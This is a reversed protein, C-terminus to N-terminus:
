KEVSEMTVEVFESGIEDMYNSNESNESNFEIIAGPNYLNGMRKIALDEVMKLFIERKSLGDKFYTSNIDNIIATCKKEASSLIVVGSEGVSKIGTLLSDRYYEWACTDFSSTMRESYEYDNDLYGWWAIHNVAFYSLGSHRDYRTRDIEFEAEALLKKIKIDSSDNELIDEFTIQKRLMGLMYLLDMIIEINSDM